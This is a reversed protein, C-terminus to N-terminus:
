KGLFAGRDGAVIDLTAFPCHKDNHFVLWRLVPEIPAALTDLPSPLSASFYPISPIKSVM